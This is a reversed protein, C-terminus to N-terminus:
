YNNVSEVVDMAGGINEVRACSSQLSEREEIIMKLNLSNITLKSKLDFSKSEIRRKVNKLLRSSLSKLSGSRHIPRRNNNKLGVL